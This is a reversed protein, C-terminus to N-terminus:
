PKNLLFELPEAVRAAWARESHGAGEFVRSRFNETGYGRDRAIQDVVPQAVGYQADLEITGHDMYIRHHAPDPLHAQLYNFAAIPIAANAQFSGIWHTSLCAAGGFVQPYESIAYVSILGGMSSGMLFTSEPGPRTAFRADIAPKLEEVLFRLYRDALPMGGLAERVFRSREPEPILPLFKEPFYEAHRLKANNWIGVIITDHVRGERILTALAADVNWAQKNWTSGADFLMQGDQMYLVDYRRGAGYGEPLWVDVTRPSVHKSPFAELRVITGSSVRPIEDAQVAAALALCAATAGFLRRRRRHQVGACLPRLIAAVGKM